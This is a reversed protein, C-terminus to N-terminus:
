TSVHIFRYRLNLHYAFSELCVSSVRYLCIKSVLINTYPDAFLVPSVGGKMVGSHFEALVRLPRDRDSDNTGAITHADVSVLRAPTSIAPNTSTIILFCSLFRSLFGFPLPYRHLYRANRCPMGRGPSALTHSLSPPRPELSM